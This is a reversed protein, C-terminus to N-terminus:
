LFITLIFYSLHFEEYHSHFRLQFNLVSIVTFKSTVLYFGIQSEAM